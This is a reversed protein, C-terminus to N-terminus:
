RKSAAVALTEVAALPAALDPSVRHRDILYRPSNYSVWVHGADDESVLLKLPLDIAISPAAVMVPTGARPDGFVLLKTPSMHLGVKAAEGGHDIVAVLTIARARLLAEVRAVTEDISYASKLTTIGNETM